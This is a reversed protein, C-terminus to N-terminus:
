PRDEGAVSKGGPEAPGKNRPEATSRDRPEAAVPEGRLRLMLALLTAAAPRDTHHILFTWGARRCAEALTQRHAILRARYRERLGEARDALWREEGELGIFETRGSYPLTEEAPDLVQILHGPSGAAALQQIRPLLEDLPDLFDSIWIASAFRSLRVPPPMSAILQPSRLNAALQEAIRTTTKRSASPQTLGMLAVREGARILMEAAAFMLVLARDSKLATSLHSRFAMSPSIDPWLWVTHAAEWERERVFLHDSSASRRWDITPRADGAQFQRFQWFTEGPGARRRGHLGHAVTNAVRVGEIVLEPLRDALAHAEAERGFMEAAVKGASGKFTSSLV